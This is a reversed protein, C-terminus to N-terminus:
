YESALGVFSGNSARVIDDRSKRATLPPVSDGDRGVSYLDFDTNIPVLNKDKRMDGRRAGVMNLYRYANGWPDLRGDLGAEALNAPFRGNNLQWRQLLQGLDHVDAIARATEVRQIHARYVPVAVAALVGVMAIAFMLELLTFGARRARASGAPMSSMHWGITQRPSMLRGCLANSVAKHRAM